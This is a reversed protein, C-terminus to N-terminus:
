ISKYVWEKKEERGKPKTALSHKRPTLIGSICIESRKSILQWPIEFKIEINGALNRSM